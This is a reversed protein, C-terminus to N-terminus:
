HEIGSEDPAQPWNASVIRGEGRIVRDLLGLESRIIQIRQRLRGTEEPHKGDRELLALLKEAEGMASVINAFWRAREIARPSLHRHMLNRAITAM